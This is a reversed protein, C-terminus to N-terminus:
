KGGFVKKDVAYMLHDLMVQWNKLKEDNRQAFALEIQKEATRQRMRLEKLPLEALFNIHEEHQEKTMKSLDTPLPRPGQLRTSLPKTKIGKAALGHRTSDKRWGKPKDAM